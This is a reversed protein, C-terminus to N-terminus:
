WMIENFIGKFDALPNNLEDAIVHVFFYLLIFM